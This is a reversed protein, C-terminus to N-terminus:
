PQGKNKGGLVSPRPYVPLGIDARSIFIRPPIAAEPGSNQHSTFLLIAGNIDVNCFKSHTSFKREGAENRQISCRRM